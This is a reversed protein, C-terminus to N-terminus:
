QELDSLPARQQAGHNEMWDAPYVRYILRTFITTILKAVAYRCKFRHDAKLLYSAAVVLLCVWISSKNTLWCCTSGGLFISLCLCWPSSGICIFGKLDWIGFAQRSLPLHIGLKSFAFLARGDTHVFEGQHPRFWYILKRAALSFCVGKVILQKKNIFFVKKPLWRASKTNLIRM